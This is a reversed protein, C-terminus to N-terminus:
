RVRNYREQESRQSGEAVERMFLLSSTTVIISMNGEPNSAPNSPPNNQKRYFSIHCLQCCFPLPM